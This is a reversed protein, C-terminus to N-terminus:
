GWRRRVSATNGPKRIGGFRAEHARENGVQIMGPVDLV